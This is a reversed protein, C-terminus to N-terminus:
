AAQWDDRGCRWRWTAHLRLQGLPGDREKSIPAGFCGSVATPTVLEASADNIVIPVGVAYPVIARGDKLVVYGGRVTITSSGTAANGSYIQAGGYNNYENAVFKGIGLSVNSGPSSQAIPINQASAGIALAAILLPLAFIRTLKM